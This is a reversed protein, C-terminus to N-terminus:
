ISVFEGGRLYGHWGCEEVNHHISPQLTLPERCTVTWNPHYNTQIPLYSRQGCSPCLIWVGMSSTGVIVMYVGRRCAEEAQEFEELSKVQTM